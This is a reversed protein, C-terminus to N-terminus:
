ATAVDVPLREALLAVRLRHTRFAKGDRPGYWKRRCHHQEPRQGEVRHELPEGLAGRCAELRRSDQQAGYQQVLPAVGAWWGSCTCQPAVSSSRFAAAPSCRMSPGSRMLTFHVPRTDRMPNACISCTTACAILRLLRPSTPVLRCGATCRCPTSLSSSAAFRKACGFHWRPSALPRRARSSWWGGHVVLLPKHHLPEWTVNKPWARSGNM